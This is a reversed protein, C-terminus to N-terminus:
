TNIEAGKELLMQVVKEQGASSAAYLVTACQINQANVDVGSDLLMQVVKEHGALSAAHLATGYHESYANIDAGNDLLMQVVKEHGASSAEKLAPGYYERYANIDAGYNLLTQVMNKDGKSSAEQLATRCSGSQTNVDAGNELLMKVIEGYGRSIAGHLQADINIGGTSFNAGNELLMRVVKEHGGLLAAQLATGAYISSLHVDAGKDLLVRVVQDRGKASAAVLASGRYGGQTNANAGRDLLLHVMSLNGNEAAAGLANNHLQASYNIDAGSELLRIVTKKDDKRAASALTNGKTKGQHDIEPRELLKVGEIGKSLAEKLRKSYHKEVNFERGIKLIENITSEHNNCAAGILAQSIMLTLQRSERVRHDMYTSFIGRVLDHHGGSSAGILGKGWIRAIRWVKIPKPQKDTRDWLLRVADFYSNELALLLPTRGASDEANVNVNTGLLRQLLDTHMAQVAEHLVTQKDKTVHHLENSALLELLVFAVDFSKRKVAQFLFGTEEIPCASKEACIERVAFVDNKDIADKLANSLSIRKRIPFTYKESSPSHCIEMHRDVQAKTPFGIISYDCSDEVCKFGREHLRLHEDRQQCTLFGQEFRVCHIIPCKYFSRGYAETVLPNDKKQQLSM